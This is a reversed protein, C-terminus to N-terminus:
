LKGSPLQEIDLDSKLESHDLITKIAFSVCRRVNVCHRERLDRSEHRQATAPQSEKALNSSALM